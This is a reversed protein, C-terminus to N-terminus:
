SLDQTVAGFKLISTTGRTEYGSILWSQLVCVCGFANSEAYTLINVTVLNCELLIRVARKNGTDGLICQASPTDAGPPPPAQRQDPPTGAEPGPPPTHAWHPTDLWAIPCVGGTLMIVSVHLFCLRAGVENRATFILDKMTREMKLLLFYYGVTAVLLQPHAPLFDLMREVQGTDRSTSHLPFFRKLQTILIFLDIIGRGCVSWFKLKMKLNKKKTKKCFYYGLDGVPSTNEILSTSGLYNKTMATILIFLDIIGRGCVSGFKLKM